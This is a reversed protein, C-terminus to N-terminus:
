LVFYSVTLGVIISVGLSWEHLFKLQHSKNAIFSVILMAAAATLAVIATEVGKFIEGAVFNGFVALMAASSVIMMIPLKGDAQQKNSVKREIKALSKTFLFVFLLWGCGGICLVWAVTAFAEATFSESGLETGYATAALNAGMSETAASGIIGIRMLTLPDGLLTILSVAVVVIGFSPGIANIMGVKLASNVDQKSLGVSESTKKAMQIFKIGQFIVVGIVTLSIIWVVPHSAIKIAEEM